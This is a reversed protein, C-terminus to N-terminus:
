QYLANKSGRDKLALRFRGTAWVPPPPGMAGTFGGPAWEPGPTKGGWVADGAAPDAVVRYSTRALLEHVLASTLRQELRYRSTRNDLAPVAITNLSPPLRSARGSVHYGCGGLVLAGTFSAASTCLGCLFIVVSTKKPSM